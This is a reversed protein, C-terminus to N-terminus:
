REVEVAGTSIWVPVRRALNIGLSRYNGAVSDTLYLDTGLLTGEPTKFIFGNQGLWWIGVSKKPVAFDRIERMLHLVPM